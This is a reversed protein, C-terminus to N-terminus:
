QKLYGTGMFYDLWIAFLGWLSLDLLVVNSYAFRDLTTRFGLFIIALSIATGLVFSLALMLIRKQSLTM